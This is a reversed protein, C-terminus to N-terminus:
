IIIAALRVAIAFYSAHTRSLALAMGWCGGEEFYFGVQAAEVADPLHEIFAPTGIASEQIIEFYRM